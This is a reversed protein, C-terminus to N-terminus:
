CALLRVLWNAFLSAPWGFVYEFKCFNVQNILISLKIVESGPEILWGPALTIFSKVAM